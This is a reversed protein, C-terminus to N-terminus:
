HVKLVFNHLSVDWSLTLTVPNLCITFRKKPSQWIVLIHFIVHWMYSLISAITRGFCIKCKLTKQKKKVFCLNTKWYFLKLWEVRNHSIYNEQHYNMFATYKAPQLQSSCRTSSYGHIKCTFEQSYGQKSLASLLAAGKWVARDCQATLWRHKTPHIGWFTFETSDAEPGKVEKTWKLM